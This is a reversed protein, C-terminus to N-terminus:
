ESSMEWRSDYSSTYLIKIVREVRGKIRERHGFDMMLHCHVQTISLFDTKGDAPQRDTKVKFHRSIYWKHIDLSSIIFMQLVNQTRELLLMCCQSFCCLMLKYLWFTFMIRM